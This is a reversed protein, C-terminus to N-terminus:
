VMVKRMQFTKMCKQLRRVLNTQMSRIPNIGICIHLLGWRFMLNCNHLRRVLTFEFLFFLWWKWLGNVELVLTALGLLRIFIWGWGASPLNGMSKRFICTQKLISLLVEWTYFVRSYFLGKKPFKLNLLLIKSGAIWSLVITFRLCRIFICIM